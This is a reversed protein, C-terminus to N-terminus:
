APSLDTFTLLLTRTALHQWNRRAKFFWSVLWYDAM